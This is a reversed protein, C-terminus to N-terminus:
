TSIYTLEIELELQKKKKTLHSISVLLNISPCVIYTMMLKELSPFIYTIRPQINCHMSVHKPM